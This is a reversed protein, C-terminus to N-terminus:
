SFANFAKEEIQDVEAVGYVERLAGLMLEAVHVGEKLGFPQEQQVYFNFFSPPDPPLWGLTRLKEEQESSIQSDAPLHHNSVADAHLLEDAMQCQTYYVGRRLIITDGEELDVLRDGLEQALREWEQQTM